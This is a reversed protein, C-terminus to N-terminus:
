PTTVFRHGRFLWVIQRECALDQRHLRPRDFRDALAEPWGEERGEVEDAAAPPLHHDRPDPLRAEDPLLDGGGHGGGARGGEIQVGGLREVPVEPPDALRVHDEREGVAAFGLLDDAEHRQEPAEAHRDDGDGGIRLAPEPALGVDDEGGSRHVLRAREPDGRRGGRGGRHGQAVREREGRGVPAVERQLVVREEVAAAREAPLEEAHALDHAGAVPEGGDVGRDRHPLRQRPDGAGAAPVGARGEDHVLLAREAADEGVTVQPPVELAADLEEVARDALDHRVRGFVTPRSM